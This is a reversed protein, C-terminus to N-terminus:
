ALRFAQPDAAAEPRTPDKFIAAAEQVVEGNRDTVGPFRSDGEAALGTPKGLSGDNRRPLVANLLLQHLQQPLNNLYPRLSRRRNRFYDTTKQMSGPTFRYHYVSEPLVDVRYGRLSANAYLEWDEFGVGYDETYGGIEKFSSARVFSNADGFCNKYAGVEASGGLFLYSPRDGAPPPRDDSFFFDVFSTMVDAGGDEMATVYTSIENPKAYNDDDMFLVYKGRASRFGANRAAGLYRNTIRLITWGRDQFQPELENLFQKAEEQTSGDDVLILEFRSAPYDQWVM